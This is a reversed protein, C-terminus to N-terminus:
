AAHKDGWGCWYEAPGVPEFAVCLTGTGARRPPIEIQAQQFNLSILSGKNKIIFPLFAYWTSCACLNLLRVELQLGEGPAPHEAPPMLPGTGEM